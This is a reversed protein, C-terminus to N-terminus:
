LGGGFLYLLVVVAAVFIGFIMAALYVQIQGTQRARARVSSGTISEAVGDILGDVGKRDFNTAAATM